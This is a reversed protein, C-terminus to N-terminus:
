IQLMILDNSLEFKPNKRQAKPNPTHKKNDM